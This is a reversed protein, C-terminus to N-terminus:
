YDGLTKKYAHELDPVKSNIIKEGGLGIVELNGTSLEGVCAFANGQMIREFEAMNEKAVTVVFRSQSESFLLYDSRRVDSARPVKKLDVMAGLRGAICKKAIAVALGGLGVPQVSAALGKDIASSLASYLRKAKVADVTSVSNGVFGKEAFYESAGLENRTKGLVFLLDGAIKADMSVAKEADEMGALSSILLTPPVSIKVARGGSDFGTFDNFMSDKGSIFPTGYSVAYDFCAQVAQKLQWLREPEYSSCWCFNDLLAINGLKAGVAVLNKIASDVACAAMDYTSIDGYKPYLAQSVAVARRSSLVPRVVSTEANVRGRGQLPKLVSGAQVEHDYQVSVFERSCINLRSLMQELLRNYDAPERLKPEEHQQLLKRTKLRKKPLGEHLFRLDLDMIKKGNFEVVCKGSKTFEGIATAEVGRSKMLGIFRKVNKKPIALTMREQSESVWVQWPQIGPYKVPVKQLEVICGNCERAMEAVSCSLGGAGNDTISNYLAMDRAEKVIADSLKKQTIPDGIQVATAPSGSSLAESSFTAGHIGDLGVRNGVMVIADGPMAKKEAGNRKGIKRPILGLTGVFVLPKGKYREDFYMFGQPTPIGSCNGGVNVGEIVGLMIREASLMANQKGKARYLLRLDRPNAFCFGYRNIVPKAGLGFGIADRNVGVIGTVAGGFPNLASPSNHTEVKDSILFDEGFLVAGSNDKFVSACIDKKGKKKRVLETAKKIKQKFLGQKIEDLEAAFITHKCHESWTQALSELEIDNPKRGLSSFHKKIAKMSELDLALPGRRTGDANAIGKKGIRQLEADEVALDVADTRPEQELKVRPVVVSMGNDRLFQEKSKIHIREVLKNAFGGAIAEAAQQSVDGQLFLLCSSFVEADKAKERFFDRIIERATNGANDTVGPLFGIEVAFSFDKPKFPRAVAFGQTVPNSLLAACQRLDKERLKQSSVTYVDVFQLGKVEKFGAAHIKRLRSLARADAVKSFVEIRANLFVLEQM